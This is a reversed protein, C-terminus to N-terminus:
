EGDTNVPKTIDKAASPNNTKETMESIEKACQGVECSECLKTLRAKHFTGRKELDWFPYPYFEAIACQGTKAVAWQRDETSATFIEGTNGNKVAVAFTYRQSTPIQGGGLLVPTQDIQKVDVIEGVIHQAFIFSYNMLTIVGALVLLLAIALLRIKSM